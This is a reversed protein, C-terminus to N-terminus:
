KLEAGLPRDRPDDPAERVHARRHPLDERRRPVFAVDRADDARDIARDAVGAADARLHAHVHGDPTFIPILSIVIAATSDPNQVFFITAMMPLMLAWTVPAQLNQAEQESNCVAGVCAFLAVFMFYGLLFFILFFALRAPSLMTLMGAVNENGAFRSAVVARLIAGTLVYIVIQALGVSGIGLIKGTILENPSVSGLLVEMIRSSKEELIGRMMAIGYVLLTMFLIFVFIFTGFYATLFDKKTAGGTKAVEFPELEVPAMIKDLTAKDIAVNNRELRLAMVAQRLSRQLPQINKFDGVTKTDFRFADDAEVDHKVVLIGYLSGDRVRPHLADRTADLSEGPPVQEVIWKPTTKDALKDDALEHELLSGLKGTGDVFAIKKQEDKGLQTLLIPLVSIAVMLLPFIATGIWFSKKTVRDLFERRMIMLVNHM